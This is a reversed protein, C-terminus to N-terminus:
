NQKCFKRSLLILTSPLEQLLHHPAFGLTAAQPRVNRLKNIMEVSNTKPGITCIISTRRYNKAPSRTTDLNALWAIRGGTALLNNEQVV